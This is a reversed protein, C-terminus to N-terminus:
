WDALALAYRLLALNLRQQGSYVGRIPSRLAVCACFSLGRGKPSPTPPSTFDFAADAIGDGDVWCRHLVPDTFLEAGLAAVSPLGRGASGGNLAAGDFSYVACTRLDTLPLASFRKIRFLLSRGVPEPLEPRTLIEIRHIM